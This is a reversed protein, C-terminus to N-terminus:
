AEMVLPRNLETRFAASDPESEPGAAYTEWLSPAQTHGAAAIWAIFEGWAAGLGEYPGHYITRAVVAAPLQGPQVRGQASVPSAVPVGVEFDFVEPDMRFHYSFVPGIPALHQAALTSMVEAIAPGMVKQIEARAITLRIVATHQTTTHVIQPKDLMDDGYAWRLLAEAALFIM